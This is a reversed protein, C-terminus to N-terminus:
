QHQSASIKLLITEVLLKDKPDFRNNVASLGKTKGVALGIRKKIVAISTKCAQPIGSKAILNSATGPRKFM